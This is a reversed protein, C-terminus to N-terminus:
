AKYGLDVLTKIILPRVQDMVLSPFDDHMGISANAERHGKVMKNVIPTVSKDKSVYHNDIMFKVTNYIGNTYQKDNVAAQECASIEMGFSVRNYEVGGFNKTHYARAKTLYYVTGDNRVNFQVGLSGSHEMSGAFKDGDYGTASTNTSTFHWIFYHIDDPLKPYGQDSQHGDFNDWHKPVVDTLDVLKFNNYGEASVHVANLYGTIIEVRQAYTLDRSLVEKGHYMVTAGDSRNASLPNQVSSYAEPHLVINNSGAQNPNSPAVETRKLLDPLHYKGILDLIMAKYNPDTAYSMAKDDGQAIVINGKDDLQNLLGDLYKAADDPYKRADNYWDKSVINDIYGLFGADQNPYARFVATTKYPQGDKYETTPIPPTVAGKWGNNSKMGFYNHYKTALESNGWSSELIAQAVLVQLNVGQNKDRIRIASLVFSALRQKQEKSLNPLDEIIKQQEATLAVQTNGNNPDKNPDKPDGGNGPNHKPDTSIGPIEDRKTIDYSDKHAETIQKPTVGEKKMDETQVLPLYALDGPKLAKGAGIAAMNAEAIEKLVKPDGHAAAMPTAESMPRMVVGSDPKDTVWLVYGKPLPQNDGVPLDPNLKRMAADDLGYMTTYQKLTMKGDAEVQGGGLPAPVNLCFTGLPRIRDELSGSKNWEVLDVPTHTDAAEAQANVAALREPSIYYGLKESLAQATESWSRGDKVPTLADLWELIQNVEGNWPGDVVGFTALRHTTDTCTDAKAPPENSAHVAYGMGAALTVSTAAAAAMRGVRRTSATKAPTKVEDDDAQEEQDIDPEGDLEVAPVVKVENEEPAPAEKKTIVPEAEPAAVKPAAKKPAAAPAAKTPAATAPAAKTPAAKVPAAKAPAAKAPAAATKKPAATPAAARTATAAMKRAAPAEGRRETPKPPTPKAEATRRTSFRVPAMEEPEVVMDTSGTVSQRGVIFAELAARNGLIHAPVIVSEPSHTPFGEGKAM